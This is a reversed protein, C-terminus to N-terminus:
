LDFELRRGGVDNEFQGRLVGRKMEVDSELAAYNKRPNGREGNIVRIVAPGGGGPDKSVTIDDFSCVKDVNSTGYDGGSKQCWYKFDM